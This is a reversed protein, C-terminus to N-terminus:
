ANSSGCTEYIPKADGNRPAGDALDRDLDGGRGGTDSDDLELLTDLLTQEATDAATRRHLVVAEADDGLADLAAAVVDNSTHLAVPRASENGVWRLLEPRTLHLYTKM